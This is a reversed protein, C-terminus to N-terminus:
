QREQRKRDDLISRITPCVKLKLSTDFNIDKFESKM